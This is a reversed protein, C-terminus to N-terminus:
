GMLEHTRVLEEPVGFFDAVEWDELMGAEAAESVDILLGYAFEEAQREMPTALGTNARLWAHNGPHLQHHGIAHAIAWRRWGPLLGESVGVADGVKVEQVRGRLPWAFITLGLDQAVAEVDIRGALDM